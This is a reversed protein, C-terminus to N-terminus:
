GGMQALTEKVDQLIKFFNKHNEQNWMYVTNLM